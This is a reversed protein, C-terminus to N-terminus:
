HTIRSESGPCGRLDLHISVEDLLGTPAITLREGDQHVLDTIRQVRDSLPDQAIRSEGLVRQLVGQHDDPAPDRMQSLRVAKLRPAVPDEDV